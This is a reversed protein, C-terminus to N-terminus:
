AFEFQFPLIKAANLPLHCLTECGLSEAAREERASWRGPPLSSDTRFRRVAGDPCPSGESVRLCALAALNQVACVSCQQGRKRIVSDAIHGPDCCHSARVPRLRGWATAVFTAATPVGPVQPVKNRLNSGERTQSQLNFLLSIAQLPQGNRVGLLTGPTGWTGRAM